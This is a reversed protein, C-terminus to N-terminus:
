HDAEKLFIEQTKRKSLTNWITDRLYIHFFFLQIRKENKHMKPNQGFMSFQYIYLIIIIIIIIIFLYYAWRRYAKGLM